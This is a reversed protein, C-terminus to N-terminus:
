VNESKCRRNSKLNIIKRKLESLKKFRDPDVEDKLIRVTGKSINDVWERNILSTPREQILVNYIKIPKWGDLTKNLIYEIEDVNARRKKLRKFKQNKDFKIDEESRKTYYWTYWEETVEEIPVLYYNIIDNINRRNMRFDNAIHKISRGTTIQYRIAWIKKDTIKGKKRNYLFTKYKQYLKPDAPLPESSPHIHTHKTNLLPEPYINSLSTYDNRSIYEILQPYLKHRECFSVCKQGTYVKSYRFGSIGFAPHTVSKDQPYFNNTLIILGARHSEKRTIPHKVKHCFPYREEM